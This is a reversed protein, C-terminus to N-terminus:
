PRRDDPCRRPIRRAPAAAFASRASGVRRRPHLGPLRNCAICTTRRVSRTSRVARPHRIRSCRNIQQRQREPSTGYCTGRPNCGRLVAIAPVAGPRGPGMGRPYPYAISRVAALAEQLTALRQADPLHPAIGAMARAFWDPATISKAITLVTQLLPPPLHGALAVLPRHRKIEYDIRRVAALAEHLAVGRTTRPLYPAIAALAHARIDHAEIPGAIAIAESFDSMPPDGHAQHPEANSLTDTHRRVENRLRM